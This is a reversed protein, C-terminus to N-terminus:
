PSKPREPVGTSASGGAPAVGENGKEPAEDGAGSSARLHLRKYQKSGPGCANRVVRKFGIFKEYAPGYAAARAAKAASLAKNATIEENIEKITAAAMVGFAGSLIADAWPSGAYDGVIGLLKTIANLQDTDTPLSKLTDPLEKATEPRLARVASRAVRYPADLKALATRAEKRGKEHAVTAKVLAADASLFATAPGELAEKYVAAIVPSMGDEDAIEKCRYLCRMLREYDISM